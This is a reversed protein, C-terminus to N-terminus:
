SGEGGVLWGGGGCRKPDQGRGPAPPRSCNPATPLQSFHSTPLQLALGIEASNQVCGEVAGPAAARQGERWARGVGGGGGQRAGVQFHKTKGPTPAVATKKSGFLANITSSKGVNPYGTLGVVLRDGRSAQAPPWPCAPICPPAISPRARPPLALSTCARRPPRRPAGRRCAQISELAAAPWARWGLVAGEGAGRVRGVGHAEADAAAAAARAELVDLLEDVGLVRARPDSCARQREAAARVDEDAVLLPAPSSVTLHRVSRHVPAAAAFPAWSGCADSGACGAGGAGGRLARRRGCGRQARGDRGQRELVRLRRRHLRFPRGVRQLSPLLVSPLAPHPARLACRGPAHALQRAAATCVGGSRALPRAVGKSGRKGRGARGGRVVRGWRRLAQPLLDAKNLLLLSRKTPHLGLAYAELDESRYTLPDRADM